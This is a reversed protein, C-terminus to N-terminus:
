QGFESKCQAYTTAPDDLCGSYTSYSGYGDASRHHVNWVILATPFALVAVIGTVLGSIALSKPSKTLGLSGFVIALTGAILSVAVGIIRVAVLWGAAGGFGLAVTYVLVAAMAGLGIIFAPKGFRNVVDGPMAPPTAHPPTHTHDLHADALDPRGDLGHAFRHAVLESGAAPPTDWDHQAMLHAAAHAAKAPMDTVSLQSPSAM